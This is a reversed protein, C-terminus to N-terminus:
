KSVIESLMGSKPLGNVWAPLLSRAEEPPISKKTRFGHIEGRLDSPSINFREKFTRSFHSESSFGCQYAITGITLHDLNAQSLMRRSKLLRREWVYRAVGNYSAFIRYIQTRSVRFRETLLDANIPESLNEEIYRQITKGLAVSVAAAGDDHVQSEQSLWGKMLGFTGELMINAQMLNMAPVTRWLAKLHDGMFRVMPNEASLRKGHMKSLIESLETQLVRPMVLTLNKYTSTKITTPKDMDIILIDGTRVDEDDQTLAGGELYLQILIHDLNDSAIRSNHRQFLQPGSSTIGLVAEGLNCAKIEGNIDKQLPSGDTASVDFFVSMNEQWVELREKPAYTSTDFHAIPITSQASPDTM